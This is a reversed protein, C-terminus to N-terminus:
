GVRWARMAHERPMFELGALAPAALLRADLTVVALAAHHGQEIAVIDGRQALNPNIEQLGFFEPLAYIAADPDKVGTLTMLYRRAGLATSYKGAHATFKGDGTLAAAAAGAFQCCDHRGWAFHMSRRDQILAHLALHWNEVRPM